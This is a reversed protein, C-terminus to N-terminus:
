TAKMGFICPGQDPVKTMYRLQSIPFGVSAPNPSVTNMCDLWTELAQSQSTGVRAILFGNRYLKGDRSLLPDRRM